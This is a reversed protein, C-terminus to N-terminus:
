TTVEFLSAQQTEKVGLQERRWALRHRKIAELRRLSPYAYGSITRAAEAFDADSECIYYGHEPSSGVRHEDALLDLAERLRREQALPVSLALALRTKSVGAKRGRCNAGLYALILVKLHETQRRM